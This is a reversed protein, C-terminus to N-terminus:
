FLLLFFLLKTLPSSAIQLVERQLWIVSLKFSCTLYPAFFILGQEKSKFKIMYSFLQIIIKSYPPCPLTHLFPFSFREKFNQEKACVKEEFM